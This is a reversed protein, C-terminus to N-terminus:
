REVALMEDMKRVRLRSVSADDDARKIGVKDALRFANISCERRLHLKETLKDTDITRRKSKGGAPEGASIPGQGAGAVADEPADRATKCDQAGSQRSVIRCARAAPPFDKRSAADSASSGKGHWMRYITPAARGWLGRERQSLALTLSSAAM